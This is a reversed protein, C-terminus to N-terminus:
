GGQGPAGWDGNGKERPRANRAEEWGAKVRAHAEDEKVRTTRAPQCKHTAISRM